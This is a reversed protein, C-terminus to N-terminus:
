RKCVPRMNLQTVYRLSTRYMYVTIVQLLLFGTTTLIDVMESMGLSLAVQLIVRPQQHQKGLLGRWVFGPIHPVCVALYLYLSLCRWNMVMAVVWVFSHIDVAWPGATGISVGMKPECWGARVLADRSFFAPFPVLLESRDDWAISGCLSASHVSNAMMNFVTISSYWRPARPNCPAFVIHAKRFQSDMKIISLSILLFPFWKRCVGLSWLSSSCETARHKLERSTWCRINKM